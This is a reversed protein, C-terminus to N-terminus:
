GYSIVSLLFNRAAVTDPHLLSNKQLVFTISQNMVSLTIYDLNDSHAALTRLSDVAPFNRHPEIIDAVYIIKDLSTMNVAGVTHRYIAQSIELDHIDYLESILAAGIYPHLLLPINREVEGIPINRLEAQTILESDDFQRACDHLLGAIYAKNKDVHFKDALLAATDAVGVSHAFRNSNLRSQLSLRINDINM